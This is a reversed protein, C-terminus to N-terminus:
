GVHVHVCLGVTRRRRKRAKSTRNKEDEKREGEGEQLTTMMKTIKNNQKIKKLNREATLHRCERSTETSM